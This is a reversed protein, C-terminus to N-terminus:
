PGEHGTKPYDKGKGKVKFPDIPPYNGLLQSIEDPPYFGRVM